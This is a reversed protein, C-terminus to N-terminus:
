IMCNIVKNNFVALAERKEDHQDEDVQLLQKRLEEDTVDDINDDALNDPILHPNHRILRSCLCSKTM